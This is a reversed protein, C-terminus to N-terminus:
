LSETRRHPHIIGPISLLPQAKLLALSGAFTVLCALDVWFFMGGSIAFPVIPNFAVAVLVFGAAWLFKGSRFAQAFVVLAAACVVLELATRYAASSRMMLGLLLALISLWKIYRTVM